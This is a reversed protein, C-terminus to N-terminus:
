SPDEREWEEPPGALWHADEGEDIDMETEERRMEEVIALQIAARLETQGFPHTFINKFHPMQKILRQFAFHELKRLMRSTRTAFASDNVFQFISNVPNSPKSQGTEYEELFNRLINGDIIATRVRSVLRPQRAIIRRYFFDGILFSILFALGANIAFRIWGEYGDIRLPYTALQVPVFLYSLSNWRVQTLEAHAQRRLLELEHQLDKAM